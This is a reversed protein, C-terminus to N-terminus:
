PFCCFPIPLMAFSTRTRSRLNHTSPPRPRAVVIPYCERSVIEVTSDLSKRLLVIAFVRVHIWLYYLVLTTGQCNVKHGIDMEDHMSGQEDTIVMSTKFGEEGQPLVLLHLQGPRSSFCVRIM